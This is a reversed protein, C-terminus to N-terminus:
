KAAAEITSVAKEANVLGNAFLFIAPDIEKGVQKSLEAIAEVEPQEVVLRQRSSTSLLAKRYDMASLKRQPDASKMLAVVGAVTPSSFSTGTTQVYYGRADAFPAFRKNSPKEGGWFTSSGVGSLTLVGGDLFSEGGPAVVDLGIGFNSYSARTGNVATAGVAIIGEYGAPYGVQPTKENGASAVFVVKPFEQRLKKILKEEAADPAESGFSMNIVDAGRRAAYALGELEAAVAIGSGLGGIRVPLIKANPAIGQFGDAGNGAIMGASMTGHFSGTAIGQLMGRMYALLNAESVEPNDKQLAALDEAYKQKLFDDSKRSDMLKPRLQDAEDVSIRTDADGGSTGSFDWGQKEGPKCAVQKQKACDIEHIKGALAPHDWQLLNDIVAVVVGNGKKGKGWAEPARVDTRDGQINLKSMLPRSDIHWQMTKIDSPSAPTSAKDSKTERMKGKLALQPLQKGAGDNLGAKFSQTQVEIFNPMSSAVGKTQSLRNAVALTKLGEANSVKVTYFGKAFELEKVQREKIGNEALIAKRQQESLNDDFSVIVENQLILSNRKGAIQLVPFTAQVYDKKIAQAALKEGAKPDRASSLIAHEAGVSQIKATIKAQSPTGTSQVARTQTMDPSFDNQLRSFPSPQGVSRTSNLKVAVADQRVALQIKQGNYDYYLDNSLGAQEKADAAQTPATTLVLNVPSAVSLGLTLALTASSFLSKM